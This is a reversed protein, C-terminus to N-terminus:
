VPSRCFRCLKAEAKIVEACQPCKKENSKLRELKVRTYEKLKNAAQNALAMCNSGSFEFVSNQRMGNNDDWDIVLCFEEIKRKKPAALSFVGLAIIRTATLRQTIQSKNDVIIQNVSDRPIRDLEIGRHTYYNRAIFIFDRESFSCEVQCGTHKANPLGVLYKGLTVSEIADVEEYIKNKYKRKAKLVFYFIPVGFFILMVISVVNVEM